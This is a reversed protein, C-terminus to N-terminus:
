ERAAVKQKEINKAKRAALRSTLSAILLGLAIGGGLVLALVLPSLEATPKVAEDNHKSEDHTDTAKATLMSQSRVQRAGSVVVQDGEYLGDLIEIKDQVKLGTRVAVPQFDDGYKVYVWSKGGDEILAQLPVTISAALQRGTIISATVFMQPRLVRSTNNAIVRVHVTRESPDVVAAISSIKGTIAAGSPPKILVTQGTRILDLQEQNINLSVWIPSLNVISLLKKTTDVSEGNTADRSFIIGEAPAYIPVEASVKGTSIASDIQNAPAGMIRLKRKTAATLTNQRVTLAQENQALQKKTGELRAKALDLQHVADLYNKRATIGEAVLKKERELDATYHEAERTQLQIDNNAQARAKTIDAQISSRQDLLDALISAVDASYLSALLQGKRVTDNQQVDLHSIIGAVPSTVYHVKNDAPEVTGTIELTTSLREAKVQQAILGIAAQGDPSIHVKQNTAVMADKNGFAKDHGEHAIAPLAVLFFIISLLLNNKM